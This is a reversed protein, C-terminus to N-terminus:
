DQAGGRRTTGPGVPVPQESRTIVGPALTSSIMEHPVGAEKALEYILKAEKAAQRLEVEENLGLSSFYRRFTMAGAGLLKIIAEADELPDFGTRPPRIWGVRDFAQPNFPLRGSEMRKSVWVNYVKRKRTRILWEQWDNQMEWEFLLATKSASYSMGSFDGMLMEYISGGGRAIQRVYFRTVPDFDPGPVKPDLQWASEGEDLWTIMGTKIPATKYNGRGEGQSGAVGGQSSALAYQAANNRQIFVGYSAAINMSVRVATLYRRLDKAINLVPALLPVGRRQEIRYPRFYLKMNDASHFQSNNLIGGIGRTGVYYGKVRGTDWDILVGSMPNITDQNISVRYDSAIRDAEILQLRLDGDVDLYNEGIDGDTYCARVIATDMEALSMAGTYDCQEEAWQQYQEEAENNWAEDDTYFHPQPSGVRRAIGDVLARLLPDIRYEQRCETILQFRDYGPLLADESTLALWNQSRQNSPMTIESYASYGGGTRQKSAFSLMARRYGAEQRAKLRAVGWGPFLSLMARDIMQTVRGGYVANAIAEPSDTRPIEKLM